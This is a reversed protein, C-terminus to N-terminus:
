IKGVTEYHSIDNLHEKRKRIGIIIGLLTLISTVLHIFRIREGLLMMGCVSM